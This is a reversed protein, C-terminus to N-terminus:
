PRDKSPDGASSRLRDIAREFLVPELVDVIEAAVRGEDLLRLAEVAATEFRALRANSRVLTDIELRTEVSVLRFAVSKALRVAAALEVRAEDRPGGTALHHFAIQMKPVLRQLALSVENLASRVSESM